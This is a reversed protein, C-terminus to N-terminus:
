PLIELIRGNEIKFLLYQYYDRKIGRAEIAKWGNLSKTIGILQELISPKFLKYNYNLDMGSARFRGAEGECNVIFRIRVWGSDDSGSDARYKKAFEDEIAIKEGEYTKENFAYYQIIENQQNCIKFDVADINDDQFIEGVVNQIPLSDKQVVKKCGLVIWTIILFIYLKKVLIM